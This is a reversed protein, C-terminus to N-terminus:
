PGSVQCKVPVSACTSKQRLFSRSAAQLPLCGPTLLEVKRLTLYSVDGLRSATVICMQGLVLHFFLGPHQKASEQAESWVRWLLFNWCRKEDEGSKILAM